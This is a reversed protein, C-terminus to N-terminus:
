ERSTWGAGLSACLWPLAWVLMSLPLRFSEASPRAIWAVVPGLIAGAAFGLGVAFAGRWSRFSAGAGLCGAVFYAATPVGATLMWVDIARSAGQTGMMATPVWFGPLLASLGFTNVGIWGGRCGWGALAGALFFFPMPLWLAYPQVRMPLRNVLETSFFFVAAMAGSALLAGFLFSLYLRPKM